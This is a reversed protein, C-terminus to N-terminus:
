VSAASGKKTAFYIAAVIALVIVIFMLDSSSPLTNSIPYPLQSTKSVWVINGPNYGTPLAGPAFQYGPAIVSNSLINVPYLKGEYLIYQYGTSQDGYTPYIPIQTPKPQAAPVVPSAVPAPNGAYVVGGPTTKTSAPPAGPAHPTATVPAILPYYKEVFTYHAQLIATYVCAADCSKMIASLLEDVQNIFSQMGSYADSPNIKGTRVLNDYYPIVQNMIQSVKCITTQENAVAAAHNAFIQQIASVAVSIGPLIASTMSGIGSALGKVVGSAIQGAEGTLQADTLNLKSPSGCDGPNSKFYIIGRTVLSANCAVPFTKPAKAPASNNAVDQCISRWQNPVFNAPSLGVSPAANLYDALGWNTTDVGM